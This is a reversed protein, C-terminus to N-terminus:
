SRRRSVFYLLALGAVIIIAGGIYSMFFAKILNPATTVLLIGAVVMMIGFLKGRSRRSHVIAEDRAEVATLQRSSAEAQQRSRAPMFRTVVVIVTIVLGILLLENIGLKM